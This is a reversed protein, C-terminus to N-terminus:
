KTEGQNTEQLYDRYCSILLNAGVKIQDMDLDAFCLRAWQQCGDNKDMVTGHKDDCSSTSSIVNCRSGPLFQVGRKLCFELWQKTDHVGRFSIWVFYGGLPITDICVGPETSLIQVLLRSRQQLAVQLRTLVADSYGLKLSTYLVEGVFPVCGGQSRIYGVKVLADIIHTPGEIWGCRVGPAFIKTFSSVSVCCGAHHRNTLLASDATTTTTTSTTSFTDNSADAAAPALLSDIVAMRAPRKPPAVTSDDTVTGDANDNDAADYNRISSWDLLHYVEDAVVVIGFRRALAALKWRTHISMTRGTPNQHTPIIYIMTIRPLAANCKEQEHLIKELRDLDIGGGGDGGGDGNNNNSTTSTTKMPLSDVKLGHSNFIDAALFYTPREMLVVDGPSVSSLATCLIDLGHSVGHTMFLDTKTTAAAAPTTPTAPAAAPAAAATAAASSLITSPQPLLSSSSSPPPPSGLDDHQCHRHLFARLEALFQANGRDAGPYNLCQELRQEEKEDEEDGNKDVLTGGGVTQLIEQMEQLPLLSQNPHGRAFNIINSVAPTTTSTSTSTSNSTAM